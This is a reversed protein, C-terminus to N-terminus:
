CHPYHGTPPTLTCVRVRGTNSVILKYQETDNSLTLSGAYGGALGRPPTFRSQNDYNTFTSATISTFRFERWRVVSEVGMITCSSAVRCDCDTTDTTGICWQNGPHIDVVINHQQMVAHSRAFQFSFYAAQIAGKLYHSNLLSRFGATGQSAIVTVVTIAILLQILTFGGRHQHM